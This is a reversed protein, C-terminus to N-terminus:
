VPGDLAESTSVAERRYGCTGPDCRNPVAERARDLGGVTLRLVPGHLGPFNM